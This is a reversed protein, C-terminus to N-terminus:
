RKFTKNVVTYLSTSDGSQNSRNLSNFATSTSSDCNSSEITADSHLSQDHISQAAILERECRGSFRFKSKFTFLRSSSKIKPVDVGRNFSKIKM